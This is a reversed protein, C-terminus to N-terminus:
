IQSCLFIKARLFTRTGNKLMRKIFLQLLVTVKFGNWNIKFFRLKKLEFSFPRFNPNLVYGKLLIKLTHSKYLKSSQLYKNHQNKRHNIQRWRSLVNKSTQENVSSKLSTENAEDIYNSQELVLKM